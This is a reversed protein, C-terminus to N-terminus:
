RANRCGVACLCVQILYTLLVQFTLYDLSYIVNVRSVLNNIKHDGLFFDLGLVLGFMGLQYGICITLYHFTMEHERVLNGLGM